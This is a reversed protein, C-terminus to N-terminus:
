LGKKANLMDSASIITWFVCIQYFILDGLLYGQDIQSIAM